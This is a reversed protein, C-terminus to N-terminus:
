AACAEIKLPLSARQAIAWMVWTNEDGKVRLKEQVVDRTTEVLSPIDAAYGEFVLSIDVSLFLFCTSTKSSVKASIPMEMKSDMKRIANHLSEVCIDLAKQAEETTQSDLDKSKARAPDEQLDFKKTRVLKDYKTFVVVVPASETFIFGDHTLHMVLTATLFASETQQALQLLKEDGTEFVRGGAVPTETCLRSATLEVQHHM